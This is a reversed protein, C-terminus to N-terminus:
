EDVQVVVKNKKGAALLLWRGEVLENTEVERLPDSEAANNVRMGGNGALKRAASKSPQLGAAVFLDVLPKGVVEERPMTVTQVQGSAALASLSAESLDTKAGPRMMATAVEAESVGKDGHVFRTVEAALRRQADNTSYGPAEGRMGAELADIEELPVFTLIRLFKIVDEDKTAFLHQYFEYASLKSATLWIAGKESKGFKRGSADTLLPFTLGFTRVARDDLETDDDKKMYGDEGVDDSGGDMRRLLDTGATINGWQDSGGIQVQVGHHRYLHVFDYGQLLQYTFETFSIGSDSSLRTQVSDKALMTGVRAHKGVERLFELFGMGGFWDLNNLVTYSYATDSDEVSENAGRLIRTLVEAIGATNQTLVAESLVPREASKGSPDGVRATAGGVLAVPVHGCKQFWALVLIGLLNGLHLSDATPDFGCYVKLSGRAAAARLADENTTQALLGRSRLVDVINDTSLTPATTTM